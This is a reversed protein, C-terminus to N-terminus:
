GHRALDRDTLAGIVPDILVDWLKALTIVLGAALAAVGLSDTLYYTLVLGPLTAFGGTGLSGTAYRAITGRSLRTRVAAPDSAAGAGADPADTSM